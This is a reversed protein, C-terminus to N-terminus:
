VPDARHGLLSLSSSVVKKRESEPFSLNSIRGQLCNVNSENWRFVETLRQCRRVGGRARRLTSYLVPDSPPEPFGMFTHTLSIVSRSLSRMVADLAATHICVCVCVCVCLCVCVTGWTSGRTKVWCWLGGGDWWAQRCCWRHSLRVHHCSTYTHTHTVDSVCCVCKLNASQCHSLAHTHTHSFGPVRVCVCMSMHTHTHTSVYEYM